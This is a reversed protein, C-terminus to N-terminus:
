RSRFRFTRRTALPRLTARAVKTRKPTNLPPHVAEAEAIKELLVRSEDPKTIVIAGIRTVGGAARALAVASWNVHAYNLLARVGEDLKDFAAMEATSSADLGGTTAGNSM